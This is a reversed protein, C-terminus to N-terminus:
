ISFFLKTNKYVRNALDEIDENLYYAIEDLIHVLYKPENRGSKPKEELNRPTLFPADTEIMLKNLPILKVLDILHKGRREDCIWGTIGIHCGLDLYAQLEEKNGTFCHVVVGNMLDNKYKELIKYFDEFADREHLFLPLKKNCALEIQQEFYKRQMDRPSFDRNYDLGCEGIAVVCDKEALKGLNKITDHACSKVDHPHVGATSFLKNPYRSAYKAAEISSRECTGTIILPTVGAEIASEVVQERDENFSRHMLNIGIDIIKM